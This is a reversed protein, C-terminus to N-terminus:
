CPESPVPRFRFVESSVTQGTHMGGIIYFWGEHWPMGRHDMTAIELRGHCQWRDASLDFSIVEAVPEAPVGDYGIGDYNYPNTSGGVFWASGQGDFGAAMRYRPKGPHPSLPRWHIRRLNEPDIRGLWCENSAEFQRPSGDAPYRIGVGDCIVMAGNEASNAVMVGAHGFVAAGPYPTAQLWDGTQTDLVQVLNVNGMDHWGSVLYIYRDQYVVVVADEVAIPMQGFEQWEGSVGALRFVQSTSQETGDEAVTYGGFVYVNGAVTAASAALRGSQGPVAPLADWTGDASTYQWADSRTDTWSKGPGLGLTSVLRFGRGDTVLAVANNSTAQPLRALPELPIVGDACAPLSLILALLGHQLRCTSLRSGESNM